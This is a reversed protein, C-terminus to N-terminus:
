AKEEMKALTHLWSALDTRVVEKLVLAPPICMDADGMLYNRFAAETEERDIVFEQYLGVLPGGALPAPGAAYKVTAAVENMFRNLAEDMDNYTWDDIGGSARRPM